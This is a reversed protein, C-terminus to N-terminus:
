LSWSRHEDRSQDISKSMSSISPKTPNKMRDFIERASPLDGCKGYTDMSITRYFPSFFLVILDNREEVCTGVTHQSNERQKRLTSWQCRYRWPDISCSVSARIKRRREVCRSVDSWWLSRHENNEFSRLHHASEGSSGVSLWDTQTRLFRSSRTVNTVYAKAMSTFTIIDPQKMTQFTKEMRAIHGCKGDM